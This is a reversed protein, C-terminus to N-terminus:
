YEGVAVIQGLHNVRVKVIGELGAVSRIRKWTKGLLSKNDDVTTELHHRFSYDKSSLKQVRFLNPSILAYNRPDMLDVDNPNFGTEENQFVFYENPKMTFLLTWGENSKFDRAIPPQGQNVRAVAEIFSVVQEVLEQKPLGDSDLIPLGQKDTM